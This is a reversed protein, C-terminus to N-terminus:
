QPKTQNVLKHNQICVQASYMDSRALKQASTATPSLQANPVGEQKRADKNRTMRNLLNVAIVADVAAKFIRGKVQGRRPPSQSIESAQLRETGNGEIKQKKRFTDIFFCFSLLFCLLLHSTSLGLAHSRYILFERTLSGM